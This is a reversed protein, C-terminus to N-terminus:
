KVAAYQQNQGILDPKPQKVNISLPTLSPFPDLRVRIAVLRFSATNRQEDINEKEESTPAGVNPTATALSINSLDFFLAVNANVPTFL